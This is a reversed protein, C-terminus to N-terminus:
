PSLYSPRGYYEHVIQMFSEDPAAPWRERDFGPAALLRERSVDLVFCHHAVDLTLASWPLAYLRDGYGSEGGSSMVACAIRGRPVDIMVDRIKGLMEGARNMVRDGQLTDAALIGPVPAPGSEQTAPRDRNELDLPISARVPTSADAAPAVDADRAPSICTVPDDPGGRGPIVADLNQKWVQLSDYSYGDDEGQNGELYLPMPRGTRTQVPTVTPPAHDQPTM